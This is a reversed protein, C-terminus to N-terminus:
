LGEFAKDKFPAVFYTYFPEQTEAWQPLAKMNGLWRTINAYSSYNLRIVEGLTIMSSGFYDALTLQDGCVFRNKPGIIHEDLIALWKKAKERGWALTAAHVKNDPRRYDDIVQPYILGYGLDRYLGTNFWDMRENVCARQCLDTPYTPSKFKDALYKLIASSESLRFNGDVLLPVQHNPNVATYSEKLHEGSFLDVLQYEIEIKDGAALMMIPRCTTSAPHYYLKM